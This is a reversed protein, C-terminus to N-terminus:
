GVALYINYVLENEANLEYIRRIYTVQKAKADAPISDQPVMRQFQHEKDAVLELKNGEFTGM